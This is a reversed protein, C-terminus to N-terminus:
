SEEGKRNRLMEPTLGDAGDVVTVQTTMDYRRSIVPEPSITIGQLLNSKLLKIVEPDVLAMLVTGDEDVIATGIPRDWNYEWTVRIHHKM